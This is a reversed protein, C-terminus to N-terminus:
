ESRCAEDECETWFGNEQKPEFIKSSVKMERGAMEKRKWQTILGAQPYIKVLDSRLLGKSNRDQELFFHNNLINNLNIQLPKGIKRIWKDIMKNFFFKKWNKELKKEFENGIRRWNKKLEVVRNQIKMKEKRTRLVVKASCFKCHLLVKNANEWHKKTNFLNKRLFIEKPM